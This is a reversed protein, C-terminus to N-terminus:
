SGFPAILMKIVEIAVLVLLPSFDIGGLPPIVRRAQELLPENISYLVSLAPNYAGPSVWSLIVQILITFLYLNLLLVVVNVLAALLLYPTPAIATMGRIALVAELSAFELVYMFVVSATDFRRTGPILRRLPRLVPETVRLLFQALPNFADARVLQLLFRLMVALIYLMFAIQVLFVIPNQWYSSGM